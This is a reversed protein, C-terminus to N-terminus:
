PCLPLQSRASSSASQRRDSVHSRVGVSLRARGPDFSYRRLRLGFLVADKMRVALVNVVLLQSALGAAVIFVFTM